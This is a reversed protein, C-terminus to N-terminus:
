FPDVSNEYITKFIMNHVNEIYEEKGATAIMMLERFKCCAKQLIDIYYPYYVINQYYLM